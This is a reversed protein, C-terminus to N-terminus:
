GRKKVLNFKNQTCVAMAVRKTNESITYILLTTFADM